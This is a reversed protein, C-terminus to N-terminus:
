DGREIETKFNMYKGGKKTRHRKEKFYWEVSINSNYKPNDANFIYKDFIINNDNKYNLNNKTENLNIYGTPKQFLTLGNEFSVTYTFHKIIHKVNFSSCFKGNTGKVNAINDSFLGQEIPFMDPISMVYVIDYPKGVEISSPNMEMIWKLDKSNVQAITDIGKGSDTWYEERVSKILDENNLCKYWFGFKNFRDNLITKKMQKLKPFNTTIKADCINIERKFETISNIDNIVLTFSNILIGHGNKYITLHKHYSEFYYDLKDYEIEKEPKCNNKQETNSNTIQIKIKNHIIFFVTEIIVFLIILFIQYSKITHQKSIINKCNKITPILFTIPFLYTIITWITNSFIWKIVKKFSIIIKDFNM